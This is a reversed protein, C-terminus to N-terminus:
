VARGPYSRVVPNPDNSMEAILLAKGACFYNRRRNSFGAIHGTEGLRKPRRVNPCTGIPCGSDSESDEALVITTRGHDERGTGFRSFKIEMARSALLKKGLTDDILKRLRAARGARARKIQRKCFQPYLVAGEFETAGEIV